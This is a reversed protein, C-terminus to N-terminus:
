LSKVVLTSDRYKKIGQYLADVITDQYASKGLQRGEIRNTIFLIEALVSPMKAGVLVYFQAKKVGLDKIEGYRQGMHSVLSSQLHHALTISDELKYNQVLDSLIFQLDSINRRSIGNERAALRRAAEDNTNDLYYTEIGRADRSPSANTHLSIFLDANEANAIATRNELPIFSDDRRTLIVEVGMEKRLKKALKKALSLVIEKETLGGLGIAGTDKGGHGPDLVIKRISTPAEKKAAPPPAVKGKDSLAREGGNGEGQIDIVLRYPDPLLFTKYDTLSTMDLVVRVVDPSFQGVRVQRLLRDQVVIPQTADMALRTEFLDVYIRPPLAKVSDEKLVHTEHRVEASLDMIVRSYSGSSIHRVQQLLSKAIGQPKQTTQALSLHSGEKVSGLHSFLPACLILIPIGWLLKQFVSRRM